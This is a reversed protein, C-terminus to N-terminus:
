GVFMNFNPLCDERLCFHSLDRLLELRKTRINNCRYHKIFNLKLILNILRYPTITTVAAEHAALKPEFGPTALLVFFVKIRDLM